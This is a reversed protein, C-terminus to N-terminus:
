AASAVAKGPPLVGEEARLVRLAAVALALSTRGEPSALREGLLERLRGLRHRV